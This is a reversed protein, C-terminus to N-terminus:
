AVHALNLQVCEAKPDLNFKEITDYRTRTTDELTVRLHNERSSWPISFKRSVAGCRQHPLPTLRNTRPFLGPIIHSDSPSFFKTLVNLGKSVICSRSPYVAMMHRVPLILRVAGYMLWPVFLGTTHINLPRACWLVSSTLLLSCLPKLWSVSWLSATSRIYERTVRRSVSPVTSVTTISSCRFLCFLYRVLAHTFLM